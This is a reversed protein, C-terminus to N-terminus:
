APADTCVQRNRWQRPSLRTMERFRRTFYGPDDYGSVIVPMRFARGERRARRRAWLLGIVVLVCCGALLMPMVLYIFLGVYSSTHGHALDLGLLVVGLLGLAWGLFWGMLTIGNRWLSASKDQKSM